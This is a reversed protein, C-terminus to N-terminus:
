FCSKFINRILELDKLPEMANYPEQNESLLLPEENNPPRRFWVAKLRPGMHVWTLTARLLKENRLCMFNKKNSWEEAGSHEKQSIKWIIRFEVEVSSM